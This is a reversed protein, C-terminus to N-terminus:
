LAMLYNIVSVMNCQRKIPMCTSVLLLHPAILSDAFVFCILKEKKKGLSCMYDM